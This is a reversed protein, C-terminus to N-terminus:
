DSNNFYSCSLSHGMHTISSLFTGWNSTMSSVDFEGFLDILWHFVTRPSLHINSVSETWWDIMYYNVSYTISNRNLLWQVYMCYASGSHVDIYLLTSFQSTTPLTYTHKHSGRILIKGTRLGTQKWNSFNFIFTAKELLLLWCNTATWISNLKDQLKRSCIWGIMPFYNLCTVQVSILWWCSVTEKHWWRENM